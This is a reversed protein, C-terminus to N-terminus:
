KTVNHLATEMWLKAYQQHLWQLPGSMPPTDAKGQGQWLVTRMHFEAVGEEPKMEVALEFVGDRERLERKRPTDGCRVIISTPTHELVEFHDTIQTGVEYSSEQFEKPSWLQGKTENDYLMRQLILRQPTYGPGSWVGACFAKVLDGEKRLLEPKIQDLPVKRMCDDHSTVNKNPNLLQAHRIHLIPSTNPDMPVFTSKRTLFFFAGLGGAGGFAAAKATRLFIGM